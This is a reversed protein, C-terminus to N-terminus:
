KKSLKELARKRLDISNHSLSIKKVMELSNKSSSRDIAQNCLWSKFVFDKQQEANITFSGKPFDWSICEQLVGNLGDPEATNIKAIIFEKMWYVKKSDDSNSSHKQLIFQKVSSPLQDLSEEIKLLTNLKINQNKSNLLFNINNKSFFVSNILGPSSLFANLNDQSIKEINLKSLEATLYEKNDIALLALFEDSSQFTLNNLQMKLFNIFGPSMKVKFGSGKLKNFYLKSFNEQDLGSSAVIKQEWTAPKIDDVLLWKYFSWTIFFMALLFVVFVGVNLLSKISSNKVKNKQVPIFKIKKM